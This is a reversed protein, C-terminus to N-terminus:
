FEPNESRLFILIQKITESGKPDLTSCSSFSKEMDLTELKREEKECTKLANQHQQM